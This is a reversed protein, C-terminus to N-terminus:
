SPYAFFHFALPKEHAIEISIQLGALANEMPDFWM